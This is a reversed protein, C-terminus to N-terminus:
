KNKEQNRGQTKHERIERYLHEDATEPASRKLRQETDQVAPQLTTFFFESNWMEFSNFATDKRGFNPQSQWM